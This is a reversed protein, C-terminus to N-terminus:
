TKGLKHNVFHIRDSSNLNVYILGDSTKFELPGPANAEFMCGDASESGGDARCPICAV